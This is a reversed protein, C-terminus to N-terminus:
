GFSMQRDSPVCNIHVGGDQSFTENVKWWQREKRVHLVSGPLPVRDPPLHCFFSATVGSYDTMVGEFTFQQGFSPRKRKEGYVPDEEEIVILPLCYLVISDPVVGVGAVAVIPKDDPVPLATALKPDKLVVEEGAIFDHVVVKESEHWHDQEEMLPNVGQLKYPTGDKNFIAM